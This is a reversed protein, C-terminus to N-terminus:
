WSPYISEKGKQSYTKQPERDRAISEELVGEM